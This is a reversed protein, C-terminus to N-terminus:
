AVKLTPTNASAIGPRLNLALLRRHLSRTMGTLHADEPESSAIASLRGRLGAAALSVIEAKSSPKVASLERQVPQVAQQVGTM